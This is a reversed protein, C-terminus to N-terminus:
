EYKSIKEIILYETPITQIKYCFGLQNLKQILSPTDSIKGIVNIFGKLRTSDVIPPLSNINNLTYLFDGITGDLMSLFAGDDSCNIKIQNKTSDKIKGAYGTIIITPTDKITLYINTNTYKKLDELMYYKRSTEIPIRTDYCYTNKRKWEEYYQYNGSPIYRSKDEVYLIIRNKTLIMLRNVAMMALEPITWNIAFRRVTKKITDIQVGSRTQLGKAYPVFVSYFLPVESPETLQTRVFPHDYSYNIETFDLESPKKGKLYLKLNADTLYEKTSRFFITSDILWYIYPISYHQFTRNLIKDSYIIPLTIGIQRRTLFNQITKIDETTVLIIQVSDNDMQIKELEQINSICSSCTTAFFDLIVHKRNFSALSQMQLKGNILVNNTHTLVGTSTIPQGELYLYPLLMGLLFFLNKM